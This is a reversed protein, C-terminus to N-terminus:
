SLPSCGWPSATGDGRVITDTHLRAYKEYLLGFSDPLFSVPAQSLGMCSNYQRWDLSLLSVNSQFNDLFTFFANARKKNNNNDDNDYDDPAPNQTLFCLLFLHSETCPAERATGGRQPTTPLTIFCAPGGCYCCCRCWWRECTWSFLCIICFLDTSLSVGARSWSNWKRGWWTLWVSILFFFLFAGPTAPGTSGPIILLLSVPLLNTTKYSVDKTQPTSKCTLSAWHCVASRKGWEKREKWAVGWGDTGEFSGDAACHNYGGDAGMCLSLLVSWSSFRVRRGVTGRVRGWRFSATARQEPKDCHARRFYRLQFFFFYAARGLFLFKCLQCWCNSFKVGAGWVVFTMQM